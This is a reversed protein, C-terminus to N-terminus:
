EDDSAASSLEELNRNTLKKNNNRPSIIPLRVNRKEPTDEDADSSSDTSLMERSKVNSNSRGNRTRTNAKKVTEKKNPTTKPPQVNALPDKRPRGRRKKETDMSKSRSIDTEVFSHISSFIPKFEINYRSRRNATNTSSFGEEDSSGDNAPQQKRPRRRPAKKKRVEQKDDTDTLSRVILETFHQLFFLSYSM